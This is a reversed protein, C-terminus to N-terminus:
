LGSRRLEDVRDLWSLKRRQYRSILVCVGVLAAVVAPWFVLRTV